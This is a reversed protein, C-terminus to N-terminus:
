LFSSSAPPDPHPTAAEWLRIGQVQHQTLTSSVPNLSGAWGGVQRDEGEWPRLEYDGEVMTGAVGDKM